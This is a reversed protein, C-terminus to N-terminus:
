QLVYGVRTETVSIDNLTTCTPSFLFAVQIKEEINIELMNNCSELNTKAKQFYLFFFLSSKLILSSIFLHLYLLIGLVKLMTNMELGLSSCDLLTQHNEQELVGVPINFGNDTFLFIM